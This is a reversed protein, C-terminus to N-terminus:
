HFLRAPYSFVAWTKRGVSKFANGFRQMEIDKVDENSMMSRYGHSNWGPFYVTRLLRTHTERFVQSSVRDMLYDGQEFDPDLEVLIGAITLQSKIFIAVNFRISYGARALVTLLENLLEFAERGREEVIPEVLAPLRQEQAPTAEELHVLAGVNNALRKADHLTIGVLLQVLQARQQYPFTEALGWDILAIRYPDNPDDVVRLVNGAHPDGHFYAENARSFIVDFTLADSLRKALEARAKPDGPFADTIKIGNVFEMCTVGPTSFPLIAPILIHADDRYYEAAKALNRQEETVQIEQSLANQLEEFLEIVPADGIDYFQGHAQINATVEKLIDLEEELGAIAYPKLLKCVAQQPGSGDPPAVTARIVAGVSAEALVSDAFRIGYRSVVDAGLEGNIATVVEDRSTTVISNELTQLALRLDGAVEPYRALIQGLKQLSPTRAVFALLLEGRSTDPSLQSQQILRELFREKSLRNLFLILSDHVLPLWSRQAQPIVELVRSRHLFIEVIEPRWEEWDLAELAKRVEDASISEELRNDGRRPSQVLTLVRQRMEPDLRPLLASFLAFAAIDPDYRAYHDM